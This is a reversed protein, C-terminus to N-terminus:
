ASGGDGPPPALMEVWGGHDPNLVLLGPCHEELRGAARIRAGVPIEAYRLRYSMMFSARAGCLRYISPTTYALGGCVTAEVVAEGVVRIPWCPGPAKCAVLRVNYEVGGLLGILLRHEALAAGLTEDRRSWGHGRGRFPETVGEERLDRLLKYVRGAEGAGYVVLDADGAGRPNYALGGTVGAAEVGASHIYELLTLAARCVRSGCGQLREVAEWPPVLRVGSAGRDIVAAELGGLCPSAEVGAWHASRLLRLLGRWDWSKRGAVLRPVFFLRPLPHHCGKIFGVAGPAEVLWGEM